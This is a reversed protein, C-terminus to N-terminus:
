DSVSAESALSPVWFRQGAAKKQEDWHRLTAIGELAIRVANDHGAGARFAEGTVVNDGISCVSGGRRTFLSTLTLVAATERDTNLIGARNYYDIIEAHQPQLYGDVAPKGWGCFESDGSRTIGIHFPIALSTAAQSLALVVEHSAVAPYQPVVYARTMGEDRVAGSSIVVDGPHVDENWAGSGGVRLFTHAKSHMMFEVLVLEAEPSGSGGSVISIKAGRYTGSYTVFMGTRAVLRQGELKAAMEAAPDEEYGCLPDRVTVIVYDGIDDGDIGTLAPKGAAEFKPLSNLHKYSDLVEKISKKM